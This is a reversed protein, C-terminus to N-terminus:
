GGKKAKARKKAEKFAKKLKADLILDEGKVQQSDTL